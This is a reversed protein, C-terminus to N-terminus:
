MRTVTHAEESWTQPPDRDGADTLDLFDVYLESLIGDHQDLTVTIGFEDHTRIEIRGIYGKTGALRPNHARASHLYVTSCKGCGCEAVVQTGSVDVDAWDPHNELIEKVWSQERDSLARPTVNRRDPEPSPM